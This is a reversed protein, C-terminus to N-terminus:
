EPLRQAMEQLLAALALCGARNLPVRAMNCRDQDQAWLDATPIRPHTMGWAASGDVGRVEGELIHPTHEAPALRSM